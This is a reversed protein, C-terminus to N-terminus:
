GKQANIGVHIITSYHSDLNETQKFPKLINHLLNCKSTKNVENEHMLNIYNLNTNDYM